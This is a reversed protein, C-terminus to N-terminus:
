TASYVREFVAKVTAIQGNNHIVDWNRCIHTAQDGRPSRWLFSKYGGHRELFALIDTLDQGAVTFTLDWERKIHNLGKPTRSEYGDGFKIAIVNPTMTQQHGVDPLWTFTEM